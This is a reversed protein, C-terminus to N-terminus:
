GATTRFDHQEGQSDYDPGQAEGGLSNGARAGRNDPGSLKEDRVRPGEADEEASPRQEIDLRMRATTAITNAAHGCDM